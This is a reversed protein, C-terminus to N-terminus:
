RTKPAMGHCPLQVSVMTGQGLATFRVEGGLMAARERMGLLGLSNPNAIANKQIGVGNDSVELTLAGNQQTLSVQVVTAHAHRAVNTLIEQLIRFTATALEQGPGSPAVLAKCQCQIGTRSQFAQIEAEVAAALGLRDLIGPRLESAIKQISAIMEDSLERASSIKATFLARSEVDLKEGIKRELSHLDLKLATLVQGLHDHIERSLRTREEERLSQLRSSLARLQENSAEMRHRAVKRELGNAIADAIMQFRPIDSDLWPGERNFSLLGVCGSVLGGRTRLPVEIVAKYGAAEWRQRTVEAEPPLDALSRVDVPKRAMIQHLSWSNSDIAVNQYESAKGQIGPACWEHTCSWTKAEADIHLVFALDVGIFVAIEKLISVVQEDIDAGSSSALGALLAGTIEDFAAQRHLTAEARKRELASAITDSLVKLWRIDDQDWTAEQTVSLLGVCGNVLGGRGRLPVHLSSRIGETSHMRREAQAEPPLDELNGVLVTQGATLQKEMWDYVGMPMNQYRSQKSPMGPSHWEHSCSWSWGEGAPAIQDVIAYDAVLFQGVAGLSFRIKEDMEDATAHTFGALLQNILDEFAMRRALAQEMRKRGTIDVFTNQIAPSGGFSIPAGCGEVEIYTGDLRRARATMLPAPHGTRIMEARRERVVDRQKESVFDWFSRGVVEAPTKAGLLGAAAPNVYVVRDDVSVAIGNPAQEALAKYRQESERLASETNRRFRIQKRLLSVWVAMGGMLLVAVFASSLLILNRIKSRPFFLVEQPRWKDQIESLEGRAKLGQLAQNIDRVVAPNGRKVAITAPIRAFPPGAITVGDIGNAQIIYAGVWLDAAVVDVAGHALQTFGDQYNKILVLNPGPRESLLARPLGGATVGVRKGRLDDTSRVALTSSRVFFGFERTFAPEAFDFSNKREASISMALLGDAEGALVKQQASDWGLLEIQIPRGMEKALAQALDIDLGKPVGRDLYTIPPYDKDGLLLLPRVQGSGPDALLRYGFVLVLFGLLVFSGVPRFQPSLYGRKPNGSPCKMPGLVSRARQSTWVRIRAVGVFGPPPTLGVASTMMPRDANM